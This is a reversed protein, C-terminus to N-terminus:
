RYMNPGFRDDYMSLRTNPPLGSESSSFSRSTGENSPLRLAIGPLFSYSDKVSQLVPGTYPDFYNMRNSTQPGESLRPQSLSRQPFGGSGNQNIFPRHPGTLFVDGAFANRSEVFPESLFRGNAIEPPFNAFGSLQLRGPPTASTTEEFQNNTPLRFLAPTYVPIKFGDDVDNTEHNAPKIPNSSNLKQSLSLKARHLAELVSGLNNSTEQPVVALEQHKRSFEDDTKEMSMPFSFESPSSECAVIGVSCKEDPPSFSNTSTEPQENSHSNVPGQKREQINSNSTSTPYSPGPSRIEFCEETRTEQNNSSLSGSAYSPEAPSKSEYQEETIDYSPEVPSKTEYQEETVDSHNGPDCSDQTGSNNERFKEEWERQAKEEAEYQGILQAQHQLASEMDEDREHGSFYRGNFIQTESNSVITQKELPKNENDYEARERLAVPEGDSRNSFDRLCTAKESCDNQSEEISRSERHRIKRCSKGVKRASSSNSPFSARRRVSDMYKKKELAYHSDKTSKWSLSRGTSPSSEIESSSYADMENKRLKINTLTEKETVSGNRTSFDRPTEEQDSCSDFEESVDSIGHNELIALVDATAKEAKKRQLSVFKLQEELESVRKALEDARQRATKSISRESLLRARLFEVTMANSDKTSSNKRTGRGLRSSYTFISVYKSMLLQFLPFRQEQDKNGSGSM